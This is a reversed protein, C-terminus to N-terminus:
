ASRANQQREMRALIDRIETLLGAAGEAKPPDGATTREGDVANQRQRLVANRFEVVGAVGVLKGESSNESSQGATEVRMGRLKHARMLPGDYLRIDTIRNLPITAESRFVVGKRVELAHSTLRASLRREYAPVYWLSFLLWLPIFPIGAVTVALIATGAWRLYCGVAQEFEAECLTKGTVDGPDGM